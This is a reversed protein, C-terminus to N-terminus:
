GSYEEREEPSLYEMGLIEFVDEESNVPILKKEGNDDVRYLGYENLHMSRKKARSRMITNLEFPGTFYLMATPLSIFPIYKIDIRRVPNSDLRCFGMYKIKYNKDTMNDLLFGEDTLLEVLLELHSHKIADIDETTQVDPHYILLDIDGSTSKGRRYSGCIITKLQSDILKAQKRLYREIQKIESRPIAGQVKGYYKLGLRVTNSVKIQNDRVAKKLEAVNTIGYETVLKKAMASGIGIVGELTQIGEIKSQKDADYKNKLEALTGTNLIETIRNLTGTGIDNMNKVQDSDTIEFDLKKLVTLAKKISRLRYTHSQIEKTNKEMQANLLEAEIQKILQGFIKVIKKNPM